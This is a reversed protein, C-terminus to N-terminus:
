GKGDQGGKLGEEETKFVYLVKDRCATRVKFGKSAAIRWALTAGSCSGGPHNWICATKFGTGVPISILKIGLPHLPKKGAPMEELTIPIFEAEEGKEM